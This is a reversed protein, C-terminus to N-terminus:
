FEADCDKARHGPEGCRYCKQSKKCVSPPTRVRKRGGHEIDHELLYDDDHESESAIDLGVDPECDSDTHVTVAARQNLEYQLSKTYVQKVNTWWEEPANDQVYKRVAPTLEKIFDIIASGGPHYPTGILEREKLQLSKTYVQKVDTWQEPANDTLHQGVPSQDIPEFTTAMAKMNVCAAKAFITFM